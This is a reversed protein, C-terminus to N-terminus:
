EGDRLARYKEWLEDSENEYLGPLGTWCWYLAEEWCVAGSDPRHAELKSFANHVEAFLAPENRVLRFLTFAATSVSWDMPGHLVSLLADRRQSGSWGEDLHALTDTVALQVRVLYDFVDVDQPLSPPHCICAMWQEPTIDPHRDTIHSAEAWLVGPDFPRLALRRIEDAVNQPPKPLAPVLHEGELRWIEVAPEALPQRPDPSAVSSVSISLTFQPAALGMAVVNSPAEVATVALTLSGSLNERDALVQRMANATADTPAPLRGVFDRFEGLLERARGSGERDLAVLEDLLSRAREDDDTLKYQCWLASPHAWPHQEDSKRAREYWLLAETWREVNLLTDGAELRCSVDDPDFRQAEEFAAVAQEVKGEARAILGQAIATHWNRESATELVFARAEDFLGSKRLLGAVVMATQPMDQHLPWLRQCLRGLRASHRRERATQRPAPAVANLVTAMTMVATHATLSELAGEAELFRPAWHVLYTADSKARHVQTLLHFAEELKGDQAWMYARAAETAYYRNESEPVLEDISAHKRYEDILSLWHENAPDYTLLEALHSFGHSLNERTQLEARTIFYEHEASGKRLSVNAGSMSGPTDFYTQMEGLTTIM